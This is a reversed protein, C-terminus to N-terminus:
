YAIPHEPLIVGVSDAYAQWAAILEERIQPFEGSLDQQEGQDTALNYLQWQGTGYPAEQLLIKWSGRQAARRGYTELAVVEDEAYASTGGRWRALLSRGMMSSVGRVGALDLFSPAVDMVRMYADDIGATNGPLVVFAPVRIGGESVKSKSARFPATSARAWAPGLSTYSDKNGINETSNNFNNDVWHDVNAYTEMDHGEAGNDSMFFIVTNELRNQRELEALLRGINQDVRDVMAAYVEMRAQAAAKDADPLTNWATMGAEFDVAQASPSIVGQQAAGALRQARLVDWGQDYKGRYKEIDEAHAQLPWHPATYGLYAFFPKTGADGIYSILKDTMFDSSYFEEPLQVPQDDELWNAKDYREFLPTDDFHGAGGELLVFSRKFGRRGPLSQADYGLHWKAVAMTEYGHQSLHEAITPVSPLLQNRYVNSVKQLETELGSQSGMGALHNDTGTILMARTPACSPATHFNTLRVGARALQDIHPTSIEGGFAGIDTYGLDDLVILLINPRTIQQPQCGLLLISFLLGVCMKLACNKRM